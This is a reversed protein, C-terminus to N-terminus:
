GALFVFFFFGMMVLPGSPNLAHLFIDICNLLAVFIRKSMMM